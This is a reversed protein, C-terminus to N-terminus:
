NEEQSCSWDPRQIGTLLLVELWVKHQYVAMEFYIGLQHGLEQRTLCFTCLSKERDSGIQRRQWQAALSASQTGSGTHEEAAELEIDILHCESALRSSISGTPGAMTESESLTLSTQNDVKAGKLIYWPLHRLTYILIGNCGQLFYRCSSKWHDVAAKGIDRWAGM